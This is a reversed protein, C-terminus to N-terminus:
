SGRRSADLMRPFYLEFRSGRGPESTVRISGGSQEVIGLVTPLGLGSGQGEPKTTFFPEFIRELVAPPMGDGTDEVALRVCPGVADIGLNRSDETSLDVCSTALTLTGGRPMADRGNLALNLIVQQIQGPDVLVLSPSPSLELRLAVDDGVVRELLPGSGALLASLDSPEPELVQRRSFALLQRAVERAKEASLRVLELDDHLKGRPPAADLAFRTATLAVTLLNSFDHAVGGALRGIAEMKQTRRMQQDARRQATVDRIFGVIRGGGFPVVQVSVEVELVAGDKRRLRSAFRERGARQIEALHERTDQKSERAELDDISLGLFEQRSHGLLACAAENVDLIRGDIGCLLYGDQATQLVTELERAKEAAAREAEQIGGLDVLVGIHGTVAGDGGHLPAASGLVPVETGDPRRLRYEASFREGSSVARTWARGVRERDAPHVGAMWGSGLAEGPPLGLLRQMAPNLYVGSGGADTEYIGIPASQALARFRRESRDLAARDARESTVDRLVAMHLGPLIRARAVGAILARSGDPREIEGEFAQSGEALCRRWIERLEDRRDPPAADLVFRGVLADLGRGLIRLAAPNADLCRADDDGLLIGDSSEDFVARLRARASTLAAEAARRASVDQVIAVVHDMSGDDRWAPSLSISAWVVSGDKRVYRKEWSLSGSRGSALLRHNAVDRELDDPHTIDKWGMHLLEDRRYGVMECFRDNVEQFAIGGTTVVIGVAPSDFFTRLSGERLLVVLPEGPRGRHPLRTAVVPPSLSGVVAEWGRGVLEMETAGLQRCASPSARRIRGTGDCLLIGDPGHALLAEGLGSLDSLSSPGPPISESERPHM